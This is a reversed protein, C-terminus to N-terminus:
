NRSKFTSGIRTAVKQPLVCAADTFRCSMAAACPIAPDRNAKSAYSPKAASGCKL